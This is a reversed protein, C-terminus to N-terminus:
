TSPPKSRHGRSLTGVRRLPKTLRWSLTHRLANVEATAALLHTQMEGLASSVDALARETEVITEQAEALRGRVDTLRRESEASIERAEALEDKTIALLDDRERLCSEWRTAISGSRM